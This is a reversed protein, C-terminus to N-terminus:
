RKEEDPQTYTAVASHDDPDYVRVTWDTVTEDETYRRRCYARADAATDHYHLLRRTTGNRRRVITSEITMTM